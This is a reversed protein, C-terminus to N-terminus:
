SKLLIFKRRFLNYRVYGCKEKCEDKEKSEGQCSDKWKDRCEYKCKGPCLDKCNDGNKKGCQHKCEGRARCPYQIKVIMGGIKKANM